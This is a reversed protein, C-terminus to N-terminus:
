LVAMYQVKLATLIMWVSVTKHVVAALESALEDLYLTCDIQLLQALELHDTPTLTRRWHQRNPARFSIPSGTGTTLFRRWWRKASSPSVRLTAAIRVVLWLEFRMLVVLWRVDHARRLAPMRPMAIQSKLATIIASM